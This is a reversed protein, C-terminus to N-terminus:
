FPCKKFEMTYTKNILDFIYVYCYGLEADWDADDITANTDAYDFQMKVLTDANITLENEAFPKKMTVMVRKYEKEGLSVNDVPKEWWCYRTRLFGGNDDSTYLVYNYFDDTQPTLIQSVQKILEYLTM